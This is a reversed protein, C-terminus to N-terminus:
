IRSHSAGTTKVRPGRFWRTKQPKGLRILDPVTVFSYEGGMEGLFRELASLMVQRKQMVKSKPDFIADHFLIISGPRIGSLLHGAIQGEDFDLWDRSSLNWTVVQYGLLMLDIRSSLDQYGRPPRFLKIGYPAVVGQCKRVEQFRQRRGLSTLSCHSFSHNGIAHGARAVEAVLDPNGGAAQGVMFFTAKAKHKELVELLNPTSASHPGDDFTLAAVRESTLVHTITGFLTVILRECLKSKQCLDRYINM